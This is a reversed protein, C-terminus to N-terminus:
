VFLRREGRRRRWMKERKVKVLNGAVMMDRKMLVRRGRGEEGGDVERKKPWRRRNIAKQMNNQIKGAARKCRRCFIPKSVEKDM